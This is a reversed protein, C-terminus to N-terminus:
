GCRAAIARSFRLVLLGMVAGFVIHATLTIAVFRATVPIGFTAAYPTLLLALEIGLSMVIGWMWTRRGANRVGIMALYMIGFSMGNSFHYAWGVVHESLKYPPLSNDFVALWDTGLIMRGFEPFVKFLPMAPVISDIHWPRAFVFPLRFIDYACAALFGALAGFWVMKRIQGSDIMSWIALVTACPLFVRLTFSRMSAIRYFQVLLCAISTSALAFVAARELWQRTINPRSSYSLTHTM